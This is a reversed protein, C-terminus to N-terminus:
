DVGIDTALVHASTARAQRADDASVAIAWLAFVSCVSAIAFLARSLM